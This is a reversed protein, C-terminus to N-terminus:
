DPWGIVDQQEGTLPGYERGEEYIHLCRLINHKRIQSTRHVPPYKEMFLDCATKVDSAWVVVYGEQFPLDEDKGMVFSFKRM